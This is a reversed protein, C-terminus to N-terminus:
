LKVSKRDCIASYDKNIYSNPTAPMYLVYLVCVYVVYLMLMVIEEISMQRNKRLSFFNHLVNSIVRM